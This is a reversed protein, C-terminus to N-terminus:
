ESIVGGVTGPAEEPGQGDAVLQGALPLALWHARGVGARLYITRTRGDPDPELDVHGLAAAAATLPPIPLAEVPAGTPGRELLVPLVVRGNRRVAQVFREDEDRSTPETFAVDFIVTKVANATLADVLKAHISRPWPWRGLQALSDDDIAVVVIDDPAPTSFARLYTDYVSTDLRWLWDGALLGCALVAAFIATCAALTRRSYTM